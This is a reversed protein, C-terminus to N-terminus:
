TSARRRSPVYRASGRHQPPYPTGHRVYARHARAERVALEQGEELTSAPGCAVCDGSLRVEWTFLIEEVSWQTRAVTLQYAGYTASVRDAAWEIKVAKM